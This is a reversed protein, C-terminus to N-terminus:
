RWPLYIDMVPDYESIPKHDLYGLRDLRYRLCEQSVGLYQAMMRIASRDEKFLVNGGYVTITEKHTFTYVAWGVLHPRLLLCSAVVNAQWEQFDNETKLEKHQNKIRYNIIQHPVYDPDQMNVLDHGCEHAITFNREGIRSPDSLRQDLVIRNGRRMGEINQTPDFAFYSIELKLYNMAFSSIDFPNYNDYDRGLYDRLMLDALNEFEAKTGIIM